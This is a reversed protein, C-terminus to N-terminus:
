KNSRTWVEKILKADKSFDPCKGDGRGSFGGTPACIMKCDSDYLTNYQDCCRATFLYVIKGQFSYKEVREPGNPPTEKDQEAIIKALCAPLGSTDTRQTSDKKEKNGCESASLFPFIAILMLYKM